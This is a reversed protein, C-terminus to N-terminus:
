DSTVRSLCDDRGNSEERLLEAIDEMKDSATQDKYEIISELLDLIQERTRM